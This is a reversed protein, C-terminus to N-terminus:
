EQTALLYRTSKANGQKVVKGAKVLPNLAQREFTSRSLAKPLTENVAERLQNSSMPELPDLALVELLKAELEPNAVPAGTSILVASSRNGSVPQTNLLYHEPMPETGANSKRVTAQLRGQGTNAIEISLDVAALLASSGRLGKSSDKGSHHVVLVSGGKTAVRLQSLAEIPIGSDKSSNEDIGQLMMAYTDLIVFKSSTREILTCLAQVMLPDSLQPPRPTQELLFNDPLTEGHYECWAEARDRLTTAKEAAVYLVKEAELPSGLWSGGRAIELALTLAYFSKGVGPAAYVAIVANSPLWDPVKWSQPEMNLVEAGRLLHKELYDLKQETPSPEAVAEFVQGLETEKVVQLQSPFKREESM